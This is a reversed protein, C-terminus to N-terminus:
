KILLFNVIYNAKSFLVKNELYFKIGIMFSFIIYLFLVNSFFADYHDNLYYKTSMICKFILIKICIGCM